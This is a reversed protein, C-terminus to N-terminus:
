LDTKEEIRRVPVIPLAGTKEPAKSHISHFDCRVFIHPDAVIIAFPGAM